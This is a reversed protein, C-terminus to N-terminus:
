LKGGKLKGGQLKTDAGLEKRLANEVFESVDKDQRIAEIKVEKWLQPDIKLSTTERKISSKKRFL